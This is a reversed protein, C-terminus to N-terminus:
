RNAVRDTIRDAWVLGAMSLATGIILLLGGLRGGLLVGLPHAGMLEGLLIGIVPLGALVTATARPGALGARTRAAFQKRALLDARVSELLEVIPLGHRDALQWAVGVRRWSLHGSAEGEAVVEGGLEARGAMTGLGAVVPSDARARALERAASACAHAPPAGVSLEAIMVSLALALDSAEQEQGRTRRSRRRRWMLTVCVLSVAVAVQGSGAIMAVVPAACAGIVTWPVSPASRVSVNLTTLRHEVRTAPWWHVAVAVALLVLTM